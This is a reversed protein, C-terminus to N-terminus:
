LGERDHDGSVQPGSKHVAILVNRKGFDSPADRAGFNPHSTEFFNGHRFDDRLDYSSKKKHVTHPAKTNGATIEVKESKETPTLPRMSLTEHEAIDNRANTSSLEPNPPM